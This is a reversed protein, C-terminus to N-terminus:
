LEIQSQVRNLKDLLIFGEMELAKAKAPNTEHDMENSLKDGQRILDDRERKLKAQKANGEAIQHEEVANEYRDTWTGQTPGSACGTLALVVFWSSLKLWAANL